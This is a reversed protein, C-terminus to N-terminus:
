ECNGECILPGLSFKGRKDDLLSGTDGFRLKRVPLYEKETLWGSDAVEADLGGDCNCWTNEIVCNNQVGCECKRSGQPANGWYDM